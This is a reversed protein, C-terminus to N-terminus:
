KKFSELMISEEEKAFKEWSFNNLAYKRGRKAMDRIAFPHTMCFLMKEKLQMVNKSSYVLADIKDHLVESVGSGSSVIVPIGLAMAEIVTLGWTQPSNPFVLVDSNKIYGMREEDSFFKDIFHVNKTLNNDKIIKKLFDAYKVDFDLKSLIILHVSNNKMEKLAHLVDEYRRNSALLNACVFLTSNNDIGLQKKLNFSNKFNKFKVTDIGSRAVKIRNSNIKLWEMAKTKNKEDLVILSSVKEFYKRDMKLKFKELFSGNVRNPVDNINAVILRDGLELRGVVWIGFWDHPNLIDLEKNEFLNRFKSIFILGLYLYIKELISTNRIFKFIISKRIDSCFHIRFKEFEPFSNGKLYAFTFFSVDHGKKSLVKALELSQKATGNKSIITPLIIAIKM